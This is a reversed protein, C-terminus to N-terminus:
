GAPRARRLRALGYRGSNSTASLPLMIRARARPWRIRYSAASRARCPEYFVDSQWPPLIQLIKGPDEHLRPSGGGHSLDGHAGRTARGVGRVGCGKQFEHHRFVFLLVIGPGVEGIRETGLWNGLWGCRRFCHRRRWRGGARRLLRTLFLRRGGDTGVPTAQCRRESQFRASLRSRRGLCAPWLRGLRQWRGTRRRPFRHFWRLPAALPFLIFEGKAVAPWGRFRHRPAPFRSIGDLTAILLPWRPGRFRSDRTGRLSGAGAALSRRRFRM